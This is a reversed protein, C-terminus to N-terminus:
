MRASAKGQHLDIRLTLEKQDLERRVQAEDFGTDIGRRCVYLQNVRIDLARSRVPRGLLRRRV